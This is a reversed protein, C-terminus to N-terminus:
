ESIIFFHPSLPNQTTNGLSKPYNMIYFAGKQSTRMLINVFQLSRRGRRDTVCLIRCLVQKRQRNTNYYVPTHAKIQAKTVCLRFQRYFPVIFLFKVSANM